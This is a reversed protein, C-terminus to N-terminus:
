QITEYTEPEEQALIDFMTRQGNQLKINLPAVIRALPPVLWRLEYFLGLFSKLEMVNRWTKWDGVADTIHDPLELQVPRISNGLHDIREIFLM